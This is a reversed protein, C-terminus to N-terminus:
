PSPPPTSPAGAEGTGDGSAPAMISPPFPTDSEDLNPQYGPGIALPHEPLISQDLDSEFNKDIRQLEKGAADTLVVVAKYPHHAVVGELAPTQFAIRIPNFPGQKTMVFPEGGSPNEFTATIVSDDPLDRMPKLAIGYTAEAIRYNFIFGGGAIALYEGSRNCAAGAVLAVLALSRLIRYAHM